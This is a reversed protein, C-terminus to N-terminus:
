DRNLSILIGQEQRRRDYHPVFNGCPTRCAQPAGAGSPPAEGEDIEQGRVGESPRSYGIAPTGRPAGPRLFRTLRTESFEDDFFLRM